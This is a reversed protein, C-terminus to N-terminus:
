MSTRYLPHKLVKGPLSSSHEGNEIVHIGNVFVHDIGEPFRHPYNQFPYTHPYLNTARDHIRDLDFIVIDAWAGPRLVGRDMVGLRQAPFSTMKRIAEELSLVPEDRVYRELVGPFEGYSCPCYPPPDNLFGHPALVQGDSAIMVAPHQLLIRINKEDIYDFIASVKEGMEVILDFYVDFPDEERDSAIAEITKGVVSRSRPAEYITIRDWRGHKLLGAPGFAPHSDRLIEDRISKRSNSDKLLSVIDAVARGLISQPLADMLTPGLDTHVDNDVTVDLGQRRAEEVLALNATADYPAGYKPANHSIQVPVGAERGIRIAEAVAELITEREGRIHSAYLGGYQAVVECLAIIEDTDAFCGPPYVLGTSLGFAGAEIAKSLYGQMRRMEASNPNREEFGMVAIRLAGHGVLSALNIALGGSQLVELYQAFSRWEWTVEPATSIRGWDHRIEDLYRENVPAPSMGCNGIVQTTIGQHVASEALRNVLISLDSHTHIDFFGPTVFRGDVDIVKVGKLTGASAVTKIRGNCIALDGWFWPNGCGDLIRGNALVLETDTM